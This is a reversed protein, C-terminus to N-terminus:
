KHAPDEHTCLRFHSKGDSTAFGELYVALNGAGFVLLTEGQIVLSVVHELPPGSWNIGRGTARVTSLWIVKSSERDLCAIQYPSCDGGHLVVYCRDDTMLVNVASQGNQDAREVMESGIRVVTKGSVVRLSGDVREIELHAPASDGSANRTRRYRWKEGVTFWDLGPGNSQATCLTADWSEPVPVQVRGQVFGAFRALALPDAPTGRPIKAQPLTRRVPEWAARLAVTLDADGMMKRLEDPTASHIQAPDTASADRSPPRPADQKSEEPPASEQALLPLFRISFLTLLLVVRIILTKSM